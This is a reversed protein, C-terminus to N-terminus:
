RDLPHAGAILALLDVYELLSLRTAELSNYFANLKPWTNQDVLDLPPMKSGMEQMLRAGEAGEHDSYATHWKTLFPRLGENLIKIALPGLDTPSQGIEPGALKLEERTIEFLAYLSSLAERVSGSNKNLPQTTIRTSFEVYLRWAAVREAEGISITAGGLGFPLNVNINELKWTM